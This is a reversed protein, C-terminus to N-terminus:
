GQQARLGAYEPDEATIEVLYLDVLKIVFPDGDPEYAFEMSQGRKLTLFQCDNAHPECKGDGGTVYVDSAISFGAKETGEDAGLFLSIPTRESPMFTMTAVDRYMKVNGKAGARIDAHVTFLLVEDSNDGASGGGSGSSGDDAPVDAAADAGYDIPEVEQDGTGGNANEDVEFQQVFPNKSRMSDLRKTYDRIGVEEEALVAPVAANDGGAGTPTAPIPAETASSSLAVPVAVIAVLLVVVPILLHRERLDRFLNKIRM